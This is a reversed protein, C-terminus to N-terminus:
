KWLEVSSVRQCGPNNQLWSLHGMFLRELGTLHALEPDVRPWLPFFFFALYAIMSHAAASKARMEVNFSGPHHSLVPSELWLLVFSGKM